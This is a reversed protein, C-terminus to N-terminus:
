DRAVGVLLKKKQWQGNCLQRCLCQAAGMEGSDGVAELPKWQGVM